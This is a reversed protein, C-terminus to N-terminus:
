ANRAAYHAAIREAPLIYNYIAFEAMQGQVRESYSPGTSSVNVGIGLWDVDINNPIASAPLESALEGNLYLRTAKLDWPDYQVVLHYDTGTSLTVPFPQTTTTGSRDTISLSLAGDIMSLYIFASSNYKRTLFLRQTGILSDFRVFCEVTFTSPIDVRECFVGGNSTTISPSGSVFPASNFETGTEYTARYDRHGLLTDIRQPPTLDNLRVYFSPNDAEVEAMYGSQQPLVVHNETNAYADYFQQVEAETFTRGYIGAFAVAGGFGPPLNYREDNSSAYGHGTGGIYLMDLRRIAAEKYAGGTLRNTNDWDEFVKTSQTHGWLRGAGTIDATGTLVSNVYLEISQNETYAIIVHYHEGAIVPSTIRPDTRNRASLPFRVNMETTTVELTPGTARMHYGYYSDYGYMTADDSDRRGAWVFILSSENSQPAQFIFEFTLNAYNDPVSANNNGTFTGLGPFLTLGNGIEAETRNSKIFKLSGDTATTQAFDYGAFVSHYTSYLRERGLVNGRFFDYAVSDLFDAFSVVGGLNPDRIRRAWFASQPGLNGKTNIPKIRDWVLANKYPPGSPDVSMVLYENNRNLGNFAYGGNEDTTTYGIKYFTEREFLLVPRNPMAVGDESVIGYIGGDGGLLDRSPIPYLDSTVSAAIRYDANAQRVPRYQMSQSVWTVNDDSSQILWDISDAAIISNGNYDTDTIRVLLYDVLVANGAGFDFDVARWTTTTRYGPWNFACTTQDDGDILNELPFSATNVLNNNLVTSLLPTNPATTLETGDKAFLRLHNIGLQAYNYTNISRFQIRWYRAPATM